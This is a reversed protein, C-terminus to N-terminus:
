YTIMTDGFVEFFLNLFPKSFYFLHTGKGGSQVILAVSVSPNFSPLFLSDFFTKLFSALIFFIIIKAGRKVVSLWCSLPSQNFYPNLFFNLINKVFV